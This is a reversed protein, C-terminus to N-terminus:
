REYESRLGGWTTVLKGAPEVALATVTVNDYAMPNTANYLAIKGKGLPGGLAFDPDQVSEMKEGEMYMTVTDGVVEVTVNFWKRQQINDGDPIPTGTIGDGAVGPGGTKFFHTWEGDVVKDISFTTANGHDAEEQKTWVRIYNVEDVYRVFLGAYDNDMHYMDCSFEYDTWSDSGAKKTLAYSGAQEDGGSPGAGRVANDVTGFSGDPVGGGVFWTTPVGEAADDFIEWREEWNPDDFKDKLQAMIETTAAFFIALVAILFVAKVSNNYCFRM